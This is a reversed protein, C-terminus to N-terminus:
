SLPFKFHMCVLLTSRSESGFLFVEFFKQVCIYVANNMVAL